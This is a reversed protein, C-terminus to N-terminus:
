PVTTKEEALLIKNKLIHRGTPKAEEWPKIKLLLNLLTARKKYLRKIGQSYRTLRFGMKRTAADELTVTLTLTSADRTLSELEDYGKSRRLDLYM